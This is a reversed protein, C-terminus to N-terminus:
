SRSHTTQLYSEYEGRHCEICEQSGVYGVTKSTNRFPSPAIEAHLVQDSNSTQELHDQGEAPTSSGPPKGSVVYRYGWVFAIGLVLLALGSVVQRRRNGHPTATTPREPSADAM